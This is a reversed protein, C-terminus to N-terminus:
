ISGWFQAQRPQSVHAVFFVLAETVPLILFFFFLEVLNFQWLSWVSLKPKLEM